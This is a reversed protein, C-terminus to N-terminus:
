RVAKRRLASFQDIAMAINVLADIAAALAIFWIFPALAISLVMTSDGISAVDLAKGAMLWALWLLCAAMLLGMLGEIFLVVRPPVLKDLFDLALHERHRTVLPLGMFIIVVMALEVLETTGRLPHDFLYRGVVDVFTLGVLGLLAAAAPVVFLYEWRDIVGTDHDPQAPLPAEPPSASNM